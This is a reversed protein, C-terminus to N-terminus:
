ISAHNSRAFPFPRQPLSTGHHVDGSHLLTDGQPPRRACPPKNQTRFETSFQASTSQLAEERENQLSNVEERHGNRDRDINQHSAAKPHSALLHGTPSHSEPSISSLCM